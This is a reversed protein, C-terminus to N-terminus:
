EIVEVISMMTLSTPYCAVSGSHFEVYYMTGLSLWCAFYFWCLVPDPGERDDGDVGKGLNEVDGGAGEALNGPGCLLIGSMWRRLVGPHKWVYIAMTNGSDVM